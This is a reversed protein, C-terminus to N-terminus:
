LSSSTISIDKEEHPGGRAVKGKTDIGVCPKRERIRYRMVEVKMQTLTGAALAGPQPTEQNLSIM